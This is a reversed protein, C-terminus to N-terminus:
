RRFRLDPRRKERQWAEDMERATSDWSGIYHPLASYGFTEHTKKDAIDDLIRQAAERLRGIQARRAVSDPLSYWDSLIGQLRAEVDALRRYANAM